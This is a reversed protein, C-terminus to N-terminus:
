NRECPLATVDLNRGGDLLADGGPEYKGHKKNDYGYGVGKDGFPPLAGEHAEFAHIYRPEIQDHALHHRIKKDIRDLHYDHNGYANIDDRKAAAGGEGQPIGQAAKDQNGSGHAEAGDGHRKENGGYGPRRLLCGGDPPDQIDDKAGQAPDHHGLKDHGPKHLVNGIM